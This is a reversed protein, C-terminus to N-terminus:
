NMVQSIRRPDRWPGADIVVVGLGAESLDKALVGGAAGAGVIVIDVTEDENRWKM